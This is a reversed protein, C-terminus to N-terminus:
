QTNCLTDVSGMVTTVMGGSKLFCRAAAGAAAAGGVSVLTGAGPVGAGAVSGAGAVEAVGVLREGLSKTKPLAMPSPLKEVTLIRNSLRMIKIDPLVQRVCPCVLSQAFGTGM